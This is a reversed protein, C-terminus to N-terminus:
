RLLLPLFLQYMSLFFTYIEGNYFSGDGMAAGGLLNSSADMISNNDIVDLRITGSGSGTNVTVNYTKGSGSVGTISAGTVGTTTLAFDRFSSGVMDVGTVDKSFLVTFNVSTATSPNANARVISVVTPGSQNICSDYVRNMEPWLEPHNILDTSYWAGWTYYMFGDLANTAIFQCDWAQMDALTPMSYGGGAAFTQFLYVLEVKGDFGANNILARDAIIKNKANSCTGEAGGFCHQWTVAVDMVREIDASTFGSMNKLDSVNDIYNWVKFDTRGKTRMFNKLQTKISAMDSISTKCTSTNWMPEHASIMGIFHPDTSFSDLMTTVRWIYDGNQPSNFPTEWGCGSVDGGQNPWIVYNFNYKTALARINSWKASSSNSADNIFTDVIITKVAHQALTAYNANTYPSGRDVGYYKMPRTLGNIPIPIATPTTAVVSSRLSRSGSDNTNIDEYVTESRGSVINEGFGEAGSFAPIAIVQSQLMPERYISSAGAAIYTNGLMPAFIALIGMLQYIKKNM